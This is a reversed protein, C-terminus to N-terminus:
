APGGLVGTFLWGAAALGADGKFREGYLGDEFLGSGDVWTKVFAKVGTEVFKMYRLFAFSSDTSSPTDTAYYFAISDSPWIFTANGAVGPAAPAQTVALGVNYSAIGLLEAILSEETAGGRTYKIMDKVDANDLLAENVKYGAVARIKSMDIAAAAAVALLKGRVIKRIGTASFDTGATVNTGGNFNTSTTLLAAIEKEKTIEIQNIVDAMRDAYLADVAEPGITMARDREQIDVDFGLMHENLFGTGSDYRNRLKEPREGPARKTVEAGVHVAGENGKKRIIYDFASVDYPSLAKEAIFNQQRGVGLTLNALVKQVGGQLQLGTTNSM